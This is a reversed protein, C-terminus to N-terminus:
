DMLPHLRRVYSYYLTSSALLQRHFSADTMALLHGEETLRKDQIRVFRSLCSYFVMSSPDFDEGPFYAHLDFDSLVAHAKM